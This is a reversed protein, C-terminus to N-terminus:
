ATFHKQLLKKLSDSTFELFTFSLLTLVGVYFLWTTIKDLTNSEFLPLIIILIFCVGVIWSMIKLLKKYLQETEPTFEVSTNKETQPQQTNKKKQKKSM